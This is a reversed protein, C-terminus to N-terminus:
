IEGAEFVNGYSLSIYNNNWLNLGYITDYHSDSFENIKFPIITFNIKYILKGSHFNFIDISDYNILYMIKILKENTDNM